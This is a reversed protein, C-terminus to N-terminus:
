ISMHCNVTFLPSIQFNIAFVLMQRLKGTKIVDQELMNRESPCTVIRPLSPRFRPRPETGVTKSCNLNISQNIQYLKVGYRCYKLRTFTLSKKRAKDRKHYPAKTNSTEDSPSDWDLIREFCAVLVPSRSQAPDRGSWAIQCTHYLFEGFVTQM